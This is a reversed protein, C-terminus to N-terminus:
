ISLLQPGRLVQIQRYRPVPPLPRSVLNLAASWSPRTDPRPLHLGLSFPTHIRPGAGPPFAAAPFSPRPREPDPAVVSAPPAAGPALPWPRLCPQARSPAALVRPSVRTSPPLPPGPRGRLHRRLALPPRRPPGGAVTTPPILFGRAPGVAGAEGGVHPRPAFSGPTHSFRLFPSFFLGSVRRALRWASERLGTGGGEELRPPPEEAASPPAGSGSRPLPPPPPRVPFGEAGAGTASGRRALRRRRRRRSRRAPLAFSGSICPLPSSPSPAIGPLSRRPGTRGHALAARGGAGCPLGDEKGAWKAGAGGRPPPALGSVPPRSPQSESPTRRPATVGPVGKRRAGGRAGRLQTSGPPPGAAHVGRTRGGCGVRPADEPRGTGAGRRNGWGRPAGVGFRLVGPAARIADRGRGAAMVRAGRVGRGGRSCTPECPARPGAPRGPRRRRRLGRLGPCTGPPGPSRRPSRPRPRAPAEPAAAATEPNAPRMDGGCTQSRGGGRRCPLLPPGPSRWALFLFPLSADLLFLFHRKGELLRAAPARVFPPRGGFGGRGRRMAPGPTLARPAGSGGRAPGWGLVRRRPRPDPSPGPTVKPMDRCAASRGRPPCQPTPPREAGERRSLRPFEQEPLRPSPGLDCGTRCPEREFVSHGRGKEGPDPVINPVLIQPLCSRLTQASDGAAALESTPTDVMFALTASALPQSASCSALDLAPASPADATCRGVLHEARLRGRRCPGPHLLAAGALGLSVTM